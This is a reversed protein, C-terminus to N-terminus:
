DLVSSPASRVYFFQVGKELWYPLEDATVPVPSERIKDITFGVKGIVAAPASRLVALERGQGASRAALRNEKDNEIVL